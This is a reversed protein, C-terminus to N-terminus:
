LRASHTLHAAGDRADLRKLILAGAGGLLGSRRLRLSFLPIGLRTRVPVTTDSLASLVTTTRTSRRTFCGSYPLIMLSDFFYWAWSSAFAKLAPSCTRMSSHAGTEFSFVHVTRSRMPAAFATGTSITSPAEFGTSSFFAGALAFASFGAAFAFFAFASSTASASAQATKFLLYPRVM